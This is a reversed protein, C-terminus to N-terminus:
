FRELSNDLQSEIFILDSKNIKDAYQKKVFKKKNNGKYSLIDKFNNNCPMNIISSLIEIFSKKNKIIWDYNVYLVCPLNNNLGLWNNLKYNRMVFPNPFRENTIPHREIMMEKNFWPHDKEFFCEDYYSHWPERIFQSFSLSKVEDSLHWPNKYLSGIWDYVNRRVVLTLIDQGFVREQPVIFHKHGYGYTMINSKFNISILRDIYNTGSCRNGFLQIARVQQSMSGKIAIGDSLKKYNEIM